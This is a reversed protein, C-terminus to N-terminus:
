SAVYWTTTQRGRFRCRVHNENIKRGVRARAGQGGGWGGGGRQVGQRRRSNGCCPARRTWTPTTTGPASPSSGAPACTRCRPTDVHTCRPPRRGHGGCACCTPLWYRLTGACHGTVCRPRVSQCGARHTSASHGIVASTCQLQRSGWGGVGRVEAPSRRVRRARRQDQIHRRLAVGPPHVAPRLPGLRLAM